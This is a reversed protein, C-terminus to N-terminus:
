RHEMDWWIGDLGLNEDYVNNNPMTTVTRTTEFHFVPLKTTAHIPQM